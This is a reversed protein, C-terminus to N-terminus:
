SVDNLDYYLLRTRDHLDADNLPVFGNKYYFPIADCYADVTLFRCGTKNYMVFYTKIFKMLFSGINRGKMSESVAFQGIKVSPYSKLRKRNNFRRSFRNYRNKNEFDTIAIKDNSLSFFAVVKRPDAKNQVAYSIALKEKRFLASQNLIFDNLYDNGCDFSEIKDTTELRKIKYLQKLTEFQNEKM